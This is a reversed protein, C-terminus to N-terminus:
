PVKGFAIGLPANTASPQATLTSRLWPVPARPRAIGQRGLRCGCGRASDFQKADHGSPRLAQPCFTKGAPTLWSYGSACGAIRTQAPLSAWYLRIRTILSSFSRAWDVLRNLEQEGPVFVPRAGNELLRKM